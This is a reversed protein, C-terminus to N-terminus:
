EVNVIIPDQAACLVGKHYVVPCHHLTDPPNKKANTHWKFKWKPGGLGPSDYFPAPLAIDIGHARDFSYDGTSNSLQWTVLGAQGRKNVRLSAYPLEAKCNVGVGSVLVPVQSCGPDGTGHGCEWVATSTIALRKAKPLLCEKKDQALSPGTAILLALAAVCHLAPAPNKM